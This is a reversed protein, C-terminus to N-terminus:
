VIGIDGLGIGVDVGFVGSRHISDIGNQYTGIDNGQHGGNSCYNQYGDHYGQEAVAGAKDKDMTEGAGQYEDEDDEDNDEAEEDDDEYEEDDDQEEEDEEKDESENENEDVDDGDDKDSDRNNDEIGNDGDRHTETSISARMDLRMQQRIAIAARDLRMKGKAGLAVAGERMAMEVSAMEGVARRAEMIIRATRRRIELVRRTMSASGSKTNTGCAMQAGQHYRTIGRSNWQLRDESGHGWGGEFCWFTGFRM